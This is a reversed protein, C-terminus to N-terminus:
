RTPDEGSSLDDWSDVKDLPAGAEHRGAARYRRGGTRWTHATALVLVGALALLVFCVGAVFPWATIDIAVVLDAVSDQGAIWTRETVASAVSSTPRAMIITAVLVLLWGGILVALAGFVWRLARGVITLATGLALAALSLPALVPVADAGPVELAADAGDSLHAVLWTQTSSIIGLAGAVLIALVSLLRARRTM